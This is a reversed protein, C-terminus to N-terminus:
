SRERLVARRDLKRARRQRTWRMRDWREHRHGVGREQPHSLPIELPSKPYKFAPINERRRSSLLNSIQGDPLFVSAKSLCPQMDVVVSPFTKIVIRAIQPARKGFVARLGAAM